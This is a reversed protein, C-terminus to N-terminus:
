IGTQDELLNALLERRNNEPFDNRFAAVRYLDVILQGSLQDGM